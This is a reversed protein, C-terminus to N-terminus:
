DNILGELKYVLEEVSEDIEMESSFRYKANVELRMLLLHIAEHKASGKIDKLLEDKDPPASNLCVTAVMGSPSVSLSAFVGVLPKCKFYVKYGTLGFCQQWGKFYKIFKAFDKNM